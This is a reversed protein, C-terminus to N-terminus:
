KRHEGCKKYWIHKPEEGLGSATCTTCGCKFEIYHDGSRDGIWKRKISNQLQALAKFM